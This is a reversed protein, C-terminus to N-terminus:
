SKVFKLTGTVKGKSDTVNIFYLGRALGAINKLSYLNKGKVAEWRYNAILAGASNYLSIKKVDTDASNLEITTSSVVPNPYMTLLKGNIAPFGVGSNVTTISAADAPANTIGTDAVRTGAANVTVTKTSYALLGLNDKVQLVYIYVGKVLGTASTIKSFNNGVVSASPGSAQFWYYEVISGDPDYSGSADLSVTSTPLTITQDSGANSVPSQNGASSANVTVTKTSYTQAGSNDRVQLVYTYVGKVLNSATTVKGFNDTIVSSSPGSAQLWYYQVINGDPDYSASADLTVSSTPLTITQDSGANSVPPQNVASASVTVTKTSYTQAGSNDRVQLVYIYVGNILNTATTVKAFNDGIVSTSPGSAQLWYYQAINGDPDYSASADLTVTSGAITQDSGANSVPSQNGAPAQNVTVNVNASSSLGHNDKATFTFTYSGQILGTIATSTSSPAAVTATSPGSAETWSYSSIVAGNTGTGTGSLTVSSAPLTITQAGSTTVSPPTNVAAANVTISVTASTSLGNNDKATFTFTYSGQVLNTITTSTSGPSTITATSPGSAQTWTYSSITAGNTGAATGSVTVSNAPLTIIQGASVSVTPPTNAPPPAAGSRTNSLFWEYLNQTFTYNSGDALTRTIHGFDYANIWAGGHGGTAYYTFKSVPTVGCALSVAQIHQTVTPSVNVDDMCHFAWVPLHNTGVTRCFDADSEEPTGCIPAVAAIQSDFSPDVTVADSILRWVGGGGLSLGTVYIRNPDIQLNAKAYKIMESVYFSPWYGYAASLQPSLVVFSSTQGNYTFKMSVGGAALTNPLANYAVMGLQSTGNGREAVGHLFIILPHKQTGYDPPRFELFGIVGDPSTSNPISKGVQQSIASFYIFLAAFAILMAKFTTRM